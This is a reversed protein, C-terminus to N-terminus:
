FGCLVYLSLVDYGILKCCIVMYYAYHACLVFYMSFSRGVYGELIGQLKINM